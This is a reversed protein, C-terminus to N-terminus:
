LKFSVIAMFLKSGIQQIHILRESLTTSISVNSHDSQGCVRVFNKIAQLFGVTQIVEFRTCKTKIAVYYGSQSLTEIGQKWFYLIGAFLESETANEDECRLGDDWIVFEM